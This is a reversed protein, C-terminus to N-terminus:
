GEVQDEDESEDESEGEDVSKYEVRIAVRVCM